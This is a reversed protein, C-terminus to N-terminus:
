RILVMKRVGRYPAGRDTHVIMECLYVGSGLDSDDGDRGDWLVTHHGAPRVGDVLTQVRRGLIDYIRLEVKAQEPLRYRITTGPNFPNPYNRGLSFTRPLSPGEAAEVLTEGPVLVVDVNLASYGVRVEIEEGFAKRYGLAIAEVQYFGPRLGALMYTGDEETIVQLDGASVTAAPIGEGHMADLIKGSIELTSLTFINSQEPVIQITRTDLAFANSLGYLMQAACRFGVADRTRDPVFRARFTTRASIKVTGWSGGRVVRYKGSEPGQPNERPSEAYYKRDYWDGTWEWVNGAMDHVGYPSMGSAFSGVPATRRYGDQEDYYPEDSMGHNCKAGDWTDGWPYIRDETGKAAKEWEAETPLRKGAWACYARADEWSVHVVPHDMKDSLDSESGEPARWYAGETPMWLRGNHTWSAGNKEAATVYGTADVFQKFAANTVEYRDISYADLVVQHAPQAGGTGEDSGMTFAGALVQEIAGDDAMVKIRYNTDFVEPLDRGADWMIVKGRGPSTEDGVDGEFSRAQVRFTHGGDDSIWVRVTLADGDADHVDYTIEVLNTGTQQAAYVHSVVPPRNASVPPCATLIALAIVYGASIWRM